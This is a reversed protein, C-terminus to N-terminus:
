WVKPPLAIVLVQVSFTHVQALPVPAVLVAQGVLPSTLHMIQSVPKLRESSTGTTPVVQM